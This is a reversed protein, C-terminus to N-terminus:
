SCRQMCLQDSCTSCTPLCSRSRPSLHSPLQGGNEIVHPAYRELLQYNRDAFGPTHNLKESIRVWRIGFSFAGGNRSRYSTNKLLQLPGILTWMQRWACGGHDGVTLPSSLSHSARIRSWNAWIILLVLKALGRFRFEMPLLSSSMALKDTALQASWHFALSDWILPSVLATLPVDFCYSVGDIPRVQEHYARSAALTAEVDYTSAIIQDDAIALGPANPNMDTAVVHLGLSQAIKIGTVSEVGASVVLLNRM